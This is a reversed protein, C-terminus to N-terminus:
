ELSSEICERSIIKEKYESIFKEKPYIEKNIKLPLDTLVNTLKIEDLEHLKKIEYIEFQERITGVEHVEHAQYSDVFAYAVPKESRFDYTRSDQKVLEEKSSRFSYARNGIIYNIQSNLIKKNEEKGFFDNGVKFLYTLDIESDYIKKTLQKEYCNKITNEFTNKFYNSTLIIKNKENKSLDIEILKKSNNENDKEELSNFTDYISKIKKFKEINVENNKILTRDITADLSLIDWESFTLFDCLKEQNVTKNPVINTYKKLFDNLSLTTKQTLTKTKKYNEKYIALSTDKMFEEVIKFNLKYQNKLEFNIMISDKYSDFSYDVLKINTNKLDYCEDNIFFDIMKEYFDNKALISLYKKSISNKDGDFRHEWIKEKLEELSLKSDLNNNIDHEFNLISINKRNNEENVKRMVNVLNQYAKFSENFILKTLLTYDIDKDLLESKPRKSLINKEILKELTDKNSNIPVYNHHERFYKMKIKLNEKKKNLCFASDNLYFNDLTKAENYIKDSLYSYKKDNLVTKIKDLLQKM